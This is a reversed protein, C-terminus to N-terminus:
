CKLQLVLVINQADAILGDADDVSIAKGRQANVKNIFVQLHSVAIRTKNKRDDSLANLAGTLAALLSSEFERALDLEFVGLGLAAILTDPGAMHVLTLSFPTRYEVATGPDNGSSLYVNEGTLPDHLDLSVQFQDADDAFAPSVPLSTGYLMTGDNSALVFRFFTVEYGFLQGSITEPRVDYGDTGSIDDWIFIAGSSAAVCDDGIQIAIQFPTYYGHHDGSDGDALQSDFTYTVVVPANRPGGARSADITTKFQFTVDEAEVPTALGAVMLATYLVVAGEFMLNKTGTM